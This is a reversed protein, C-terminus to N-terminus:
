QTIVTPLAKVEQVSWMALEACRNLFVGSMLDNVSSYLKKM